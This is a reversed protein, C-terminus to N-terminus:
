KFKQWAADSKYIECFFGGEPHPKLKLAEIYFLSKNEM